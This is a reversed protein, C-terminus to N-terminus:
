GSGRTAARLVDGSSLLGAVREGQVVPLANVGAAHMRRAAELVSEEPHTSLLPQPTMVERLACGLDLRHEPNRATTRIVDRNSLIGVLRPGEMVLVHGTRHELMLELAARTTEEPSAAVTPSMWDQVREGTLGSVERRERTGVKM